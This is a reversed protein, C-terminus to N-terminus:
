QKAMLHLARSWHAVDHHERFASMCPGRPPVAEVRVFVMVEKKDAFMEVGMEDMNFILGPHVGNLQIAIANFFEEVERPDVENRAKKM